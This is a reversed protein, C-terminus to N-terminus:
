DDSCLLRVSRISRYSLRKAPIRIRHAGIRVYHGDLTIGKDDWASLRGKAGYDPSAFFGPRYKVEVDLGVAANYCCRHRVRRWEERTM